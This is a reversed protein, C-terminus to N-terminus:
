RRMLPVFVAPRAGSLVFEAFRNTRVTLRNNQTDLACGACPMLDVWTTGNWRSLNLSSEDVIGLSKLASDTYSIVMTYPQATQIISSGNTDTSELTFSRLAGRGAYPPQAPAFLEKYTVTIPKTIAGSPFSLSLDRDYSTLSGGTPTIPATSSCRHPCISLVHLGARSVYMLDDVIVIDGDTNYMPFSPSSGLLVPHAKDHVDYSQVGFGTGVYLRDGLVQLSNAVSGIEFGIITVPHAPDHVDYIGVTDIEGFDFVWNRIYVFGDVVQIDYGRRDEKSLLRPQSPNSLDFIQFGIGVAYAINGAIHLFNASTGPVGARGRLAPASPDRVDIAQLGNTSDAIYAMAGVVQLANASGITDINGRLIPNAPDSVDLIRLGAAGDAIYALNGVVQVGYAVGSTKTSGRLFPRLPDSIDLIRLGNTGDAVYILDGTVQLDHAYQVPAHAGLFTPQSPNSVDIIQLGQDNAAVYVRTGVIRLDYALFTGYSSRLVPQAANSADVIHLGAGVGVIYVLGNAPRIRLNCHERDEIPLVLSGRLQPDVRNSLDYVQLLVEKCRGRRSSSLTYLRDGDVYFADNLGFWVSLRIPHAPDHVDLITDGSIYALNGVVQVQEIPGPYSGLLIPIAPNSVDLISLPDGAVYARNNAVWIGRAFTAYRSLLRPHYLDSIDVIWLGSEGGTIYLVTGARFVNVFSKIYPWTWLREIALSGLRVPQAPNRIDLLTLGSSDAVYAETGNTGIAYADGGFSTLWEMTTENVGNIRDTPTDAGMDAPRSFIPDVSTAKAPARGILLLVALALLGVQRFPLHKM